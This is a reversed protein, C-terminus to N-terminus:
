KKFVILLIVMILFLFIVALVIIFKINKCWMKHKLKTSVKQFRGNFYDDCIM